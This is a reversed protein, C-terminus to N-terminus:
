KFVLFAQEENIEKYEGLKLSNDLQLSGIRIRKLYTVQNGIAIFMRKVQHFKGETIILNVKNNDIIEYKAPLTKYGDDLIVGKEFEKIKEIDIDYLLEVYYEKEIQKKPSIVNHTYEGNNTIILLGETDKDLRGVTHVKKHIYSSDLLNFVNRSSSETSCIVGKPKNLMLYIDKKFNITNESVEIIDINEDIKYDSDLVVIGNVKVLGNKIIKKVESRTGIGSNALFKDLRM